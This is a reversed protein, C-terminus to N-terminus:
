NKDEENKRLQDAKKIEEHFPDNDTLSHLVFYESTDEREKEDKAGFVHRELAIGHFKTSYKEIQDMGNENLNKAEKSSVLQPDLFERIARETDQPSPEGGRVGAFLKGITTTQTEKSKKTAEQLRIIEEAIKNQYEIRLARNKEYEEGAKEGAQIASNFWRVQEKATDGSTNQFHQYITQHTDEALAMEHAKEIDQIRQAELEKLEQIEEPSLELDPNIDEHSPVQPTEFAM